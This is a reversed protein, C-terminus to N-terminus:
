VFKSDVFPLRSSCKRYFDPFFDRYIFYFFVQFKWLLNQFLELLFVFFFVEPFSRSKRSTFITPIKKGQLNDRIEEFLKFVTIKKSTAALKKICNKHFSISFMIFFFSVFSEFFKRPLYFFVKM